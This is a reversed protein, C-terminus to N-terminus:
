APKEAALSLIPLADPSAANLAGGLSDHARVLAPLRKGLLEDMVARAYRDADAESGCMQMRLCDTAIQSVITRVAAVMERAAADVSPRPQNSTM